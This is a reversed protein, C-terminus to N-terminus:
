PGSPLDRVIYSREGPKVYGLRRAERELVAPRKLARRRALLQDREREGNREGEHHRREAPFPQRQDADNQQQDRDLQEIGCDFFEGVMHRRRMMGVDAADLVHARGRNADRERDGTEGPKGRHGFPQAEDLRM